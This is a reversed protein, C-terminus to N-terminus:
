VLRVGEIKERIKKTKIFVTSDIDAVTKEDEITVLSIILGDRIAEDDSKGNKLGAIYAGLLADGAGTANKINAKTAHHLYRYVHKGHAFYVGDRFSLLIKKVGKKALVLLGKVISEEDTLRHGVLKEAEYINVKLIDIQDLVANLKHAKNVSIADTFKVGRFEKCIYNIMEENLNNDVLLMDEDSITAKLDDLDKAKLDLIIAMDNVAVCMDGTEDLIAMYLSQFSNGKIKSFSLDLGESTCTKYALHGFHDDGFLSVFYVQDTLNAINKAINHGVGGITIKIKAPNSDRMILRHDCRAGIDINCAGVVYIKM